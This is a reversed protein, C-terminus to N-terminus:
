HYFHHYNLSNTQFIRISYCIILTSDIYALVSLPSKLRITNDKLGSHSTLNAKRERVRLNSLWVASILRPQNRQFNMHDQFSLALVSSWLSHAPWAWVQVSATETIDGSVQPSLMCLLDRKLGPLNGLVHVQWSDSLSLNAGQSLPKSM